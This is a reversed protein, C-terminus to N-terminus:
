TSQMPFRSTKEWIRKSIVGRKIMVYFKDKRRKEERHQQNEPSQLFKRKKRVECSTICVNRSTDAKEDGIRVIGV